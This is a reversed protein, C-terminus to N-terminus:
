CRICIRETNERLIRILIASKKRNTLRKEAFKAKGRNRLDAAPSRRPVPLLLTRRPPPNGREPSGDPAAPLGGRVGAGNGLRATSGRRVVRGARVARKRRLVGEGPGSEVPRGPLLHLKELTPQVSERHSSTLLYQKAGADRLRNLADLAGPTLCDTRLHARYYAQFEDSIVEMPLQKLDFLHEYFRSIPVGIYRYYEDLGIPPRSRKRLMQNVAELSLLVDDCLTGNWDWFVHVGM